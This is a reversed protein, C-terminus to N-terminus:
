IEASRSRAMGVDSAERKRAATGAVPSSSIERTGPCGKDTRRTRLGRHLRGDEAALELDREVHLQQREGCSRHRGGCFDTKRPEIWPGRVRQRRKTIVTARTSGVIM